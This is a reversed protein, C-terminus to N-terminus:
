EAAVVIGLEILAEADASDVWGGDRVAYFAAAVSPDLPLFARRHGRLDVLLHHEGAEVDDFPPPRKAFLHPLLAAPDVSFPTVGVLPHPRLPGDPRAGAAAEAVEALTREPPLLALEYVIMEWDLVERLLPQVLAGEEIRRRVFDAFRRVELPANRVFGPNEAWYVEMVSRLAPGILVFSYPLQAAIPGLRNSRYLMGNVRMGQQTVASAVRRRERETLAYPALAAEADERVRVCLAPSAALDAMARQFALLSM